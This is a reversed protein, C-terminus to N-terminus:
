SRHVGKLESKSTDGKKDQWSLATDTQNIKMCTTKNHEPEKKEKPLYSRPM